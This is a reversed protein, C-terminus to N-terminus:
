KPKDLLTFNSLSTLLIAMALLKCRPTFAMGVYPLWPPNAVSTSALAPSTLSPLRLRPLPPLAGNHYHPLPTAPAKSLKGSLSAFNAAGRCIAFTRNHLITSPTLTRTAVTQPNTKNKKATEKRSPNCSFKKCPM